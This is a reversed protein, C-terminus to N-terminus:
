NSPPEWGLTEADAFAKENAAVLSIYRPRLNPPILTPIPYKDMYETKMIAAIASGKRVM